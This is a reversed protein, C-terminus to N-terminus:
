LFMNTKEKYKKYEPFIMELIQEEIIAKWYILPMMLVVFMIIRSDTLILGSAVGCALYSVYLPHRVYAYPGHTILKHRDRLLYGSWTWNSGLTIRAVIFFIAAAIFLYVGMSVFFFRSVDTFDDFSPYYVRSSLLAAIIIYVASIGRVIWREKHIKKGELSYLGGGVRYLKLHTISLTMLIVTWGIVVITWEVNSM